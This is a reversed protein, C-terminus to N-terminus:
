MLSGFRASHRALANSCNLTSPSRRRLRLASQLEAPTAHQLRSRVHDVVFPVINEVLGFLALYSHSRIHNVALQESASLFDLAAAEVWTDPLFPMRFDLWKDEGMIADIQWNVQLAQRYTSAYDYPHAMQVM